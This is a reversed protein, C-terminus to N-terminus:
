ANTSEGSIGYSPFFCLQMPVPMGNVTEPAYMKRSHHIIRLNVTEDDFREPRVILIMSDGLNSYQIWLNETATDEMLKAVCFTTSGNPMQIAKEEYLSWTHEFANSLIHYTQPHGKEAFHKAGFMLYYAIFGSNGLAYASWASVGDAVGMFNARPALVSADEGSSTVNISSLPLQSHYACAHAAMELYHKM